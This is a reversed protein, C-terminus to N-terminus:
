QTCIMKGKYIGQIHKIYEVESYVIFIDGFKKPKCSFVIFIENQLKKMKCYFSGCFLNAAAKM